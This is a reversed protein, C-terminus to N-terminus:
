QSRVTSETVDLLPPLQEILERAIFGLRGVKQTLETGARGHMFVAWIAAVTPAAGRSALGAVIGALVDGSGATALGVVGDMYCYGMGSPTVILTSAGKLVLVSSLRAAAERAARVPNADVTSKEVGALQAMEGAHPTLVVRGAHPRLLEVEDWLGCLALADIVYVPGVVQRLLCVVLDHASQQNMIGPGILVADVQKATAILEETPLAIPEGDSSEHLPCLGAELVTLGVATSISGPVAFQIKGAGVRLASLGSLAVAGPVRRSGGVVLVRGRSNKDTEGALAPLPLERLLDIDVRQSGSM